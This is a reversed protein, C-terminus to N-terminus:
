EERGALFDLSCDLVKRLAVLSVLTPTKDGHYWRLLQSQEIGSEKSLLYRSKGSEDIAAKLRTKIDSVVAKRTPKFDECFGFLFDLPCLFFESIKLANEYSPVHLDSLYEYYCSDSIGTKASLTKVSEGNIEMLERLREAFANINDM